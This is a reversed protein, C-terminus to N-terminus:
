GVIALVSMLVTRIYPNASVNGAAEFTIEYGVGPLEGNGLTISIVLGRPDLSPSGIIQLDQAGLPTGDQRALTVTPSVLSTDPAQLIDGLVASRVRREGPQLPSFWQGPPVIPQYTTM